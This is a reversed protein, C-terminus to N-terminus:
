IKYIGFYVRKLLTYDMTDLGGNGNIDGAAINPTNYIGFYVRKLLTYDMTDLNGNGNVDGLQIEPELAPIEETESVYGCGKCTYEQEGPVGVQPEATVVWEFDHFDADTDKGCSCEKWHIEEDYQWEGEGSHGSAEVLVHECVTCIQDNECDAEAGPTHTDVEVMEGCSCLKWHNTGDSIWEGEGQCQHPEDIDADASYVKVENIFAFVGNLEVELKVFRGTADAVLSAWVVNTTSTGMTLDGVYTYGSDKTNSVYISMKKPKTIGSENGVFTNVYISGIDYVAELDIVVSGIKDPANVYGEDGASTCFGFWDNAEYSLEPFAVGDTLNANYSAPWYGESDVYGKGEYDKGLAINGESPEDPDIQDDTPISPESPDSPEDSTDGNDMDVGWHVTAFCDDDWGGHWYGDEDYYEVAWGEPQSEAECYIDTLKTCREFASYGISIVSNPIEISTLSNCYKFASDGITTVSDGLEVSTLNHCYSFASDSIIKVSDPIEISTLSNCYYFAHNGISTVSNPIEINKLKDNYYFASNGITTVSNGLKISTLNYCYYFASDGITIVSDGLEISTLNNCYEFAHNGISTVSNPIEINKVKDNYYFAFDGIANVPLDNVKEPIVVSNVSSDFKTVIYYTGDDSLSFTLPGEVVDGYIEANWHVTADCDLNWNYNWGDPKSKVECYIDALSTCHSFAGEGIFVVSDSISISKPVSCGSFAYDGIYALSNPLSNSIINNGRFAYNGIYTVSAPININKGGYWDFAYDAISVITDPLEVTKLANPVEYEYALVHAGIEKVPLGKCTPSVVTKTAFETPEIRSVIYYTGDDSLTYVVGDKNVVDAGVSIASFPVLALVMVLSLILSVTRKM